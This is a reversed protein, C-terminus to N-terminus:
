EGRNWSPKILSVLQGTDPNRVIRPQDDQGIKHYLPCDVDPFTLETCGQCPGGAKVCWSTGTNFQREPCDAHTFPGKCGLEYLCGPQGPAKAFKHAEFDSRRECLDHILNGFFRVPRGSADVAGAGPLGHLLLDVVTGTFWDPQPPCGAVNIVPTKVGAERLVASLSQCGTPNPRAAHIGGFSACTGIAIAAAAPRALEIVRDRM